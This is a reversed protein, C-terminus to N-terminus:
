QSSIPLATIHGELFFFFMTDGVSGACRSDQVSTPREVPTSMSSGEAYSAASLRGQEDKSHVTYM